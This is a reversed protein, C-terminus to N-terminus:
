SNKIISMKGSRVKINLHRMGPMLDRIQYHASKIEQASDRTSSLKNTFEKLPNSEELIHKPIPFQAVVKRSNTILFIANDQTKKRCEISLSGCTSEQRKWAEVFGDFFDHSDIGYKMSVLALYQLLRFDASSHNKGRPRGRGRLIRRRM